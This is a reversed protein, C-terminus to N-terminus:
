FGPRRNKRPYCSNAVQVPFLKNGQCENGQSNRCKGTEVKTKAKNRRTASYEKTAFSEQLACANERATKQADERGNNKGIGRGFRGSFTTLKGTDM